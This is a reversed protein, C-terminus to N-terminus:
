RLHVLLGNAVFRGEIDSTEDISVWIKKGSLEFKITDMTEEFFGLRLTAESPVDKENYM